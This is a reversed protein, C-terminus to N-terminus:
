TDKPKAGGDGIAASAAIDESETIRQSPFKKQQPRPPPPRTRQPIKTYGGLSEADKRLSIPFIVEKWNEYLGRNYQNKPMPGPDLDVGDDTNVVAESNSESLLRTSTGPTCTVDADDKVLPTEVTTQITTNTEANKTQVKGEKIAKKYRNRQRKYWDRVDSWKSNENTTQGVSTLYIKPNYDFSVISFDPPYM